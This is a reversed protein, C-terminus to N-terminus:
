QPMEGEGTNLWDCMAQGLRLVCIENVRKLVDDSLEKKGDRQKGKAVLTSPKMACVLDKPVLGQERLEDYVCMDFQQFTGEDM